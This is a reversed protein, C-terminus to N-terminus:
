SSETVDTNQSKRTKHIRERRKIPKVPITPTEAAPLAALLYAYRGMANLVPFFTTLTSGNGLELNRLARVSIGARAALTLQDIQLVDIRYRKLHQGVEAEMEASTMGRFDSETTPM